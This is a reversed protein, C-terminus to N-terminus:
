CETHGQQQPVVDKRLGTPASLQVAKSMTKLKLMWDSKHMRCSYEELFLLLNRMAVHVLIRETFRREKHYEKRFKV